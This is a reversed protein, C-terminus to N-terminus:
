FLVQIKPTSVRTWKKGQWWRTVLMYPWWVHWLVLFPLWDEAVLTPDVRLSFPSESPQAHQCLDPSCAPLSPHILGLIRRFRIFFPLYRMVIDNYVWSRPRVGVLPRLIDHGAQTSYCGAIQSLPLLIIATHVRANCEIPYLEDNRLSMIFDFSFHGTLRRKDGAITLDAQLRGLFRTTWEEARRGVETTTGDEYTMLM